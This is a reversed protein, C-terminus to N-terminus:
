QYALGAMRVLSPWFQGLALASLVVAVLATRARGRLGGTELLTGATALAEAVILFTFALAPALSRPLATLPALAAGGLSGGALFGALTLRFTVAKSKWAVLLVLLFPLVAFGDAESWFRVLVRGLGAAPAGGAPPAGVVARGAGWAAVALALWIAAFIYNAPELRFRRAFTLKQLFVVLPIIIGGPALAAGAGFLLASFPLRGAVHTEMFACQAGALYFAAVLPERGGAFLSAACAPSAAALLAPVLAAPRFGDIGAALLTLSVLAVVGGAAGIADPVGTDPAAGVASWLWAGHAWSAVVLAGLGVGTLTRRNRVMM